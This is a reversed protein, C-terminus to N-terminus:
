AGTTPQPRMARRGSRGEAALMEAILRRAQFGLRDGRFSVVPFDYVDGDGISHQQAELIRKDELFAATTQEHWYRTEARDGPAYRQCSRHFYHTSTETEPTVAILGDFRLGEAPSQGARMTTPRFIWFGPPRFMFDLQFDLTNWGESGYNRVFATEFTPALRTDRFRMRFDIGRELLEAEFTHPGQRALPLGDQRTTRALRTGLTSGHVFETHSVDALNDNVLLYSCAIPIHGDLGDWNGDEVYAYLDCPEADAARGPEGPWVWVFGYREMIPYSRVAARPPIQQQGPVTVCDGEADFEAGHYGCRIHEGVVCGLSLPLLRHPCRDELAVPRGTGTRFLAMREGAIRRALPASGLEAPFGAVYWCNRPFMVIRGM